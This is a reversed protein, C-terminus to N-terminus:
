PLTKEYPKRHVGINTIVADILRNPTIDFAPNYVRTGYPAIRKGMGETIEDPDREEIPIDDGDNINKDITSLPCAVYFPVLHYRAQVALMYTGIKNAIDGNKAVRDAGVIVIDIKGKRMLSASMNDCILTTEVGMQMLEWVTLRAGQLVPRTENAYVRVKKGNEVAKYIPALATGIGATALAGANCHTLITAGNPILPEGNIGINECMEEDEKEIRMAEELLLRHIEGPKKGRNNFVVNLMRNIAWSLNVATPRARRIYKARRWLDDWYDGGTLIVEYSAMVVSYAGVVGILPAGRVILNKIASHVDELTKLLIFQVKTPLASQDLVLIGDDTWEITKVRKM